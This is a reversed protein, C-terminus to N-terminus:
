RSHLLSRVCRRMNIGAYDRTSVHYAVIRGTGDILFSEPVARVGLNGSKKGLVGGQPIPDIIIPFDVPHKQALTAAPMNTSILAVVALRDRRFVRRLESLRALNRSFRADFPASVYLLVLSGRLKSLDFPKGHVTTGVLTPAAAPIPGLASNTGAPELAACGGGLQPERSERCARQDRLKCAQDLLRRAERMNPQAADRHFVAVQRCAKALGATCARAILRANRSSSLEVQACAAFHGAQCLREAVENFLRHAIPCARLRGAKCLTLLRNQSHVRQELLRKLQHRAPEPIRAYCSASASPCHKAAQAHFNTVVLERLHLCADVVGARCARELVPVKQPSLKTLRASWYCDRQDGAKCSAELLPKAQETWRKTSPQKGELWGLLVCARGDRAKCAKRFLVGAKNKDFRVGIGMHHAYGLETCARAHNLSCGREFYRGAKVFDLAVRKGSQAALGRALCQPGDDCM